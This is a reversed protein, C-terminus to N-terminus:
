CYPGDIIGLELALRYMHKCPRQRKKFDPCSCHDLCVYYYEGTTGIVIGYGKKQNIDRVIIGDNVARSLREKQAKSYHISEDWKYWKKISKWEDKSIGRQNAINKDSEFEACKKCSEIFVVISVGALFAIKWTRCILLMILFLASCVLSLLLIVAYIKEETNMDEWAQNNKNDGKNMYVRGAM